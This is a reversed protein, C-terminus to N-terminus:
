GHSAEKVTSKAAGLASAPRPRYARVVIETYGDGSESRSKEVVLRRVHADSVLRGKLDAFCGSKALADAVCKCFNDADGKQGKGLFVHIEVCFEKAAVGQNKSFLKVLGMFREAEDTVYHGGSRTHRVYANVSPPIAPITFRLEPQCIL